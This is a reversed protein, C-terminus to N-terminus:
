KRNKIRVPWESILEATKRQSFPIQYLKQVIMREKIDVFEVEAMNILYSRYCRFFHKSPLKIEFNKLPECVM